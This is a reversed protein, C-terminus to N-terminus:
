HFSFNLAFFIKCRLNVIPGETFNETDNADGAIILIMRFM